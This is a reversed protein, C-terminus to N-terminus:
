FFFFRIKELFHTECRGEDGNGERQSSPGDSPSDVDLRARLGKFGALKAGLLTEWFLRVARLALYTTKNEWELITQYSSQSLSKNDCLRCTTRLHTEETLM